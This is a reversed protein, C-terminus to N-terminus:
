SQLASHPTESETAQMAPDASPKETEASWTPIIPHERDELRLLEAVVLIQKLLDVALPDTPKM